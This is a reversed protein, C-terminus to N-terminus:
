PQLTEIIEFLEYEGGPAYGTHSYVIKGTKDLIFVQPISSVNVARRFESNPDFYFDIGDWGRGAAFSRAKAASRSDDVSLAIVGFVMKEQMEPLIESIADLEKVCPKCWTAWLTLIVPKGNGVLSSSSVKQGSGNELSVDPFIQASLNRTSLLLVLCLLLHRARPHFM